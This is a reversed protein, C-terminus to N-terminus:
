TTLAHMGHGRRMTQKGNNPLLKQYNRQHFVMILANNLASLNLIQCIQELLESFHTNDCVKHVARM